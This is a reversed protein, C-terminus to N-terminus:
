KNKNKVFKKSKDIIENMNNIYKEYNEKNENKDFHENLFKEVNEKIGDIKSSKIDNLLEENKSKNKNENNCYKM